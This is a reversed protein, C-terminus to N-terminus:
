DSLCYNMGKVAEEIKRYRPIAKFHSPEGLWSAKSQGTLVAVTPLAPKRRLYPKNNSGDLTSWLAVHQMTWKKIM